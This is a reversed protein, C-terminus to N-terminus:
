MRSLRGSCGSYDRSNDRPSLKMGAEARDLMTRVTDLVQKFGKVKAYWSTWIIYSDELVSQMAEQRGDHLDGGSVNLRAQLRLCLLMSRHLFEYTALYMIKWRCGSLLGAPQTKRYVYSQHRIIMLAAEICTELSLQNQPTMYQQHLVCRSKQFLLDVQAKSQVLPRQKKPKIAELIRRLM